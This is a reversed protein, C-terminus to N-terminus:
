HGPGNGTLQGQKPGLIGMSATACLIALFRGTDIELGHPVDVSLIPRAYANIERILM